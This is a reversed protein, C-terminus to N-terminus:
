KKAEIVHHAITGTDGIPQRSIYGYRIGSFASFLDYVEVKSFLLAEGGALDGQSLTKRLHTDQESRISGLFLAAPKLIRKIELIALKLEKSNLYHLVGWALIFDFSNDAFPLREALACVTDSRIPKLIDPIYDQGVTYFLSKEFLKIHRGSGCGLDLVYYPKKGRGTKKGSLIAQNSSKKQRFHNILYTKTYSVVFEDPYELHSKERQYHKLWVVQNKSNSSKQSTSSKGAKRM